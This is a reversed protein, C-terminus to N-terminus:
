ENDFSTHGFAGEASLDTRILVQEDAGVNLRRTMADDDRRPEDYVAVSDLSPMPVAAVHWTHGNDASFVHGEVLDRALAAATPGDPLRLRMDTGTRGAEVSVAASSMITDRLATYRDRLDDNDMDDATPAAIERLVALSVIDPPDLPVTDPESEFVDPVRVPGDPVHPTFGARSLAGNLRVVADTGSDAEFNAVVAALVNYVTVGVVM